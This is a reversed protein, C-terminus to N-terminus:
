HNYASPVPVVGSGGLNQLASSGTSSNIIYWNNESPRFIAIDARGDGDYDGPVPVDDVNGWNKLLLAGDSSKVIYWNGESPRFVALDTKGDGDYDAPVIKDASAGWNKLTMSNNSSNVIYWNGESPRYVAIDTKGDGDYDGPVPIDGSSGWSKLLLSNDSSKVIYWNGESPRYVAVDTKGDGDYDGPVVNDDSLGWNKLTMTNTSSNIIYWNGESPRYVAIDAKGDGDYDGPVPQDGNTGWNRAMTTNTASNIVNWSGDNPQFVSVDTQGDGDFDAVQAHPTPDSAAFLRRGGTQRAITAKSTGSNPFSNICNGVCGDAYAVLIRGDKDVAADIFDLLNRDGGTCGLGGSCITGRQVPDNPTANTTIWTKGGDYTTSIYLYWVATADGGPKDTGLFAFAARDDDGAVVAPFASNRVIMPAVDQDDRWTLGHDDSTAIHAHGDLNKYGFYTRGGAVKDGRGTGVSPDWDSPASDGVTTTPDSDVVKRVQWTIGNDESVAVGQNDGCNHNPVFVTGDPAVKVHGHIGGCETTYLPVTPGYTLGGDDSRACFATYLQQSCYYVAHPYAPSPPNVLPAHFPGGGVTQHDVGSTLGGGEDPIWTTGDDDSVSSLSTTGSLQSVITRGTEHDTFLIPDLSTVSTTASVDEWQATTPAASDTFTVRYSQLGADYMVKGTKWNVGISPEGADDGMGSPAVFNRFVPLHGHGAAGTPAKQNVTIQATYSTGNPNFPVVRILYTGSTAPLGIYEPMSSSGAQAYITSGKYVVVDYDATPILPWSFRIRIEHTDLMGDPLDVTLTYDDCPLTSSCQLGTLGTPNGVTFPGGTYTLPNSPTNATTVTGSSPTPNTASVGATLLMIAASVTAALVFSLRLIPNKIRRKSARKSMQFEEKSSTVPLRTPLRNTAAQPL